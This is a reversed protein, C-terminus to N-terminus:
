ISVWYKPIVAVSRPAHSPLGLQKNCSTQEARYNRQYNRRNCLNKSYYGKQYNNRDRSNQKYYGIQYDKRDSQNASYYERQKSLEEPNQSYRKNRLCKIKSENRAYFQRNQLKKMYANFIKLYFKCLLNIQQYHFPFLFSVEVLSVQLTSSSLPAYRTIIELIVDSLYSFGVVSATPYKSAHSDFLYFSNSRKVAVCYSNIFVIVGSNPGNCIQEVRQLETQFTILMMDSCSYRINIVSNDFDFSNPLEDTAVFGSPDSINLSGYIKDGVCVICDIDKSSITNVNKLRSQLLFSLSMAACQKGSNSGFVKDGQHFSSLVTRNMTLELIYLIIGIKKAYLFRKKIFRM